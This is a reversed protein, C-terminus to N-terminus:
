EMRRLIEDLGMGLYTEIVDLEGQTVPLVEPFDDVVQPGDVKVAEPVIPRAPAELSGHPDAPRTKSQRNGPPRSRGGCERRRADVDIREASTSSPKQRM